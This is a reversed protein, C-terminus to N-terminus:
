RGGRRGRGGGVGGAAGGRLGRLVGAVVGSAAQFAFAVPEVGAAEADVGAGAVDGEPGELAAAGDGGSEAVVLAVEEGGSADLAAADGLGSVAVPVDVHLEVGRWWGWWVWVRGM